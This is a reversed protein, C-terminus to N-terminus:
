HYRCLSRSRGSVNLLSFHYNSINESLVDEFAFPIAQLLRNRKMAPLTTKALIVEDAPVIATVNHKHSIINKIDALSAPCPTNNINGNHDIIVCACGCGCPHKEDYEPQLQLICTEVM